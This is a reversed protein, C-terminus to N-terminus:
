VEMFLWIYCSYVMLKLDGGGSGSYLDGVGEPQESSVFFPFVQFIWTYKGHVYLWIAASMADVGLWAILVEEELFAPSSGLLVSCGGMANACIYLRVTTSPEAPLLEWDGKLVKLVDANRKADVGGGAKKKSEPVCLFVSILWQGTYHPRIM